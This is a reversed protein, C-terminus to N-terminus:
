NKKDLLARQRAFAEAAKEAAGAARYAQGLQFLIATEDVPLGKELHPIAKAPEGLQLYVRGLVAHAALLDPKKEVAAQLHPLAEEAQGVRFLVDGLLYQWQAVRPNRAVLPRLIAGAEDYSRNWWLAEALNGQTRLDQPVLAAAKRWQEVAEARRGQRQEAEALLAHLEASEPLRALREFSQRALQQYTNAQSYLDWSAQGTPLPSEALGREHVAESAKGSKEYLAALERHLEGAGPEKALAERLLVVAKELHGQGAQSRAALLAWPASGPELKAFTEQGLASYALGQGQWAKANNPSLAILAQFERLAEAARDAALLADGLELRATTNAPDLKVARQLPGLAEAPRGLKQQAMGLMLWAPALDPRKAVVLRLQEIEAAYEGSAELALSLNLRLRPEQPMAKVLQRYLRVAEASRGRLLAQKAQEAQVGITDEPAFLLLLILLSM